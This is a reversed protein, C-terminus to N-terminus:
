HRVACHLYVRFPQLHHRQRRLDLLIECTVSHRLYVGRFIWLRLPLFVPPRAQAHRCQPGAVPWYFALLLGTLITYPFRIIFYLVAEM